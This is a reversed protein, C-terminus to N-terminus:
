AQTRLTQIQRDVLAKQVERDALRTSLKTGAKALALSVLKTQLQKTAKQEALAFTTTKLDELRALEETAQAAVFATVQSVTAGGESRISAAREKADTLRAQAQQLADQAAAYKEEATQVSKVIRERRADLVASFADGGYVVVVALVVGLNLVNTELVDTNFGFGESLSFIHM